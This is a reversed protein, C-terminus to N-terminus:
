SKTHGRCNMCLDGIECKRVEAAIKTLVRLEKYGKPLLLGTKKELERTKEVRDRQIVFLYKLMMEANLEETAKEIQRWLKQGNETLPVGYADAQAKVDEIIARSPKPRIEPRAELTARIRISLATVYKRWTELEADKLECDLGLSRGWRAVSSVSQGGVLKKVMQEFCPLRELKKIWLRERRERTTLPKPSVVRVETPGQGNAM